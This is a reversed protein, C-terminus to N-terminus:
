ESAFKEDVVNAAFLPVARNLEAVPCVRVVFPCVNLLTVSGSVPVVDRSVTLPVSLIFPVNVVPVFLVSSICVLLEARFTTPVVSLEPSILSPECGAFNVPATVFLLVIVPVSPVASNLDVTVLLPVIVPPLPATVNPPVTVFSPFILPEEPSIVKLPVYPLEVAVSVVGAFSVADEPLVYKEELASKEYVVNVAFPPVTRNLEVAVVPCFSVRFFLVTDNLSIVICVLAPPNVASPVSVPFREAFFSVNALVFAPATKLTGTVASVISFVLPLKLMVNLAAVFTESIVVGTINPVVPISVSPLSVVSVSVKAPPIVCVCPFVVSQPFIMVFEASTVSESLVLIFVSVRVPFEATWVVPASPVPLPAAIVSPETEPIPFARVSVPPVPFMVTYPATPVSLAFNPFMVMVPFATVRCFGATVCPVNVTVFLPLKVMASAAFM